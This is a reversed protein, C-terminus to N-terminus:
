TGYQSAYVKVQCENGQIIRAEMTFPLDERKTMTDMVSVESDVDVIAKIKKCTKKPKITNRRGRSDDGCSLPRLGMCIRVWDAFQLDDMQSMYIEQGALEIILDNKKSCKGIIGAM